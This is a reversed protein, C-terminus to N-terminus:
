SWKPSDDMLKETCPVQANIGARRLATVYGKLMQWDSLLDVDYWPPLLALQWSPDSLCAITEALVHETGWSVNAFIPPIRERCGVLYYGGDLAPGLVVNARDLERFAQEVFAPPLTPSDSGVAVVRRAGERLQSTIFGELRRGLDGEVQPLLEYRGHALEAFYAAQDLPSYVILRRAEISALREVSDRVFADAVRAAWHPSTAAALRSKVLGPQPFKAFIGLCPQNASL